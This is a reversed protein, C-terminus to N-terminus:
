TALVKNFWKRIGSCQGENEPVKKKLYNNNLMQTIMPVCFYSASTWGGKDGFQTEMESIGHLTAKESVLGPREQLGLRLFDSRLLARSGGSLVRHLSKLMFQFGWCESKM